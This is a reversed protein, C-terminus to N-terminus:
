FQSVASKPDYDGINFWDNLVTGFSGNFSLM